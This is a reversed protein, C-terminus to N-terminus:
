VEVYDLDKGYTEKLSLLAVAAIAITIWGVVLAGNLMGLPKQAFTFATTMLPVAGRVFNPVTTAVTARINTGFQEAGNTVFLAWYGISCGLAFCLGYFQSASLNFSRSYVGILVETAFLFAGIVKRRSGLKQSLFGSGFDGVALGAYSFLVASGATVGQIGLAKSLEPALTVLIGIVFWIPLGVLICSLYKVISERSSFLQALNGRPIHSELEEFLHSELVGIRLALLSLGLGGGIFYATRWQFHQAVLAAFVAGTVGVAAVIMTGYGRENKGMIESVLTIGAGLEGALGVGSIFRLIEYQEVSHVFGNLINAISYLVISGLLVSSRGKKDGLIGWLIGGILMGFMQVNLLHIGINKAQAADVGLDKLSPIRVISFLLLDYIDVFYGLAAVVVALRIARSNM